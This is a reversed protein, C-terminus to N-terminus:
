VTIGQAKRLQREAAMMNAYSVAIDASINRQEGGNTKIYKGELKEHYKALDYYLLAAERIRKEQEETM